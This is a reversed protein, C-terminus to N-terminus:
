PLIPKNKTTHGGRQTHFKEYLSIEGKNKDHKSSGQFAKSVDKGELSLGTLHHIDEVHIPYRKDLWLRKDHVRRILFRTCRAVEGTTGFVPLDRLHMITSNFLNIFDLNPIFKVEGILESCMEWFLDINMQPFLAADELDLDLLKSKEVKGKVEGLV